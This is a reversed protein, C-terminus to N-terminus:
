DMTTNTRMTPADRAPARAAPARFTGDQRWLKWLTGIELCAAIAWLALFGLSWSAHAVTCSLSHRNAPLYRLEADLCLPPAGTASPLSVLMTGQVELVPPNDGTTAEVRALEITGNQHLHLAVNLSNHAWPATLNF